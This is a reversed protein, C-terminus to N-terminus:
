FEIVKGCKICVMHDHHEHGFIHEYSVKGQCRLTEKVLGSEALLPLTRYITARSINEGKARLKEYLTDTDFHKHSSFAGKLITRRAPTFKLGKQALHEDFKVIYDEM